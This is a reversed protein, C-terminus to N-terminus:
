SVGGGAGLKRGGVKGSVVLVGREVVLREMVLKLVAVRGDSGVGVRQVREVVRLLVVLLDVVPLGGVKDVQVIRPRELRGAQVLLPPLQAAELGVATVVQGEHAMARLISHVWILSEQWPGAQPQGGRSGVVQLYILVRRIQRRGGRRAQGERM